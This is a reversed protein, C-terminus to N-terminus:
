GKPSGANRAHNVYYTSKPAENMGKLDIMEVKRRPVNECPIPSDVDEAMGGFELLVHDQPAVSRIKGATDPGHRNCIPCQPEVLTPKVTDVPDRRVVDEATESTKAKGSMSSEGEAKAELYTPRGLPM